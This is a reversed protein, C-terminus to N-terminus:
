APLNRQLLNEAVRCGVTSEISQRRKRRIRSRIGMEQMLRLVKKHNVLVGHDQLLHMQIQRYGYIGNYKKYVSLSRLEKVIRHRVPVGGAEFNWGSKLVDNELELRKMYRVKDVYQKRRGCHDMLGFDGYLRYQRMWVKLRQIDSIGLEEAVQQKTMGQLRMEIAKKKLEFSYSQFKQGKKAM